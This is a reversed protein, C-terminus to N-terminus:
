TVFRTDIRLGSAANSIGYADDRTLNPCTDIRKRRKRVHLNVYLHANRTVRNELARSARPSYVERSDYRASRSEFKAGRRTTHTTIFRAFEISEAGFESRIM